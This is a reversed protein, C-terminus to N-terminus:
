NGYDQTITIGGGQVYVGCGLGGYNGMMNDYHGGGPGEDYFMKVCAAITDRVTGQVTWGLFSPCENEAFAIGGGGTTSFHYHPQGQETDLQAGVNAYDELAQSHAITGHNDMVRYRNTEDVCFVLDSAAASTDPLAGGGDGDGDGDGGTIDGSCAALLVVLLVAFGRM